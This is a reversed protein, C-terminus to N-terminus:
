SRNDFHFERPIKLDTVYEPKNTLGTQYSKLQSVYSLVIAVAMYLEDAIHGGVKGTFYIARALQPAEYIPIANKIAILRIDAALSNKGMALIRPAKDVKETYKLAIAYHTPNTIIVTASPVDLQIRARSMALQVSRIKRKIEPNGDTEKQEDRVDQLSMMTKKHYSFYSYIMDITVTILVGLMVLFLYNKLIALGDLLKREDHVDLLNFLDGSRSWLFFALLLFFLCFKVISKIIELANHFSFLKKLNKLPNIREPKFKLLGVSFGFGGFIFPILFSFLFLFLFLPLLLFFNNLALQEFLGAPNEFFLAVHQFNSFLVIFNNKIVTLFSSSALLIIPVSVFLVVGSSLDKSRLFNGEKKLEGKKRESPKFQKDQSSEGM